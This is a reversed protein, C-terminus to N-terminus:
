DEALGVHRLVPGVTFRYRHHARVIEAEPRVLRSVNYSEVGAGAPVPGLGAVGFAKLQAARHALSLVLNDPRYCNVLRGAVVRRLRRWRAPDSSAPLSLLVAHQVIGAARAEGAESARCMEHLCEWVVYAGLSFGVLTVPRGRRARWRALHEQLLCVALVQAKSGVVEPLEETTMIDPASVWIPPM